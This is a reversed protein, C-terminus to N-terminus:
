MIHISKLENRAIVFVSPPKNNGQGAKFVIVLEKTQLILYLSRCDNAIQLETDRADNKLVLDVLRANAKPNRFLAEAYSRGQSFSNQM